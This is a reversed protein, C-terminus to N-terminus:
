YRWLEYDNWVKQALRKEEEDTANEYSLNIWYAAKKYNQSVGLGDCYMWGLAFQATSNGQEASKTYWHVAKDYDQAVGKGDEYMRGLKAQGEGDGQEASKTYWYVAKDYDQAVGKGNQYMDGLENQANADGANAQETIEAVNQGSSNQETFNQEIPQEYTYNQTSLCGTFLITIIGLIVLWQKAIKRNTRKM